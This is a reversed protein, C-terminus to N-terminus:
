IIIRGSCRVAIVRGGRQLENVEEIAENWQGTTDVWAEFLVILSVPDILTNAELSGSGGWPSSVM